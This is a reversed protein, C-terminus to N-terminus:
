SPRDALDSKYITCEAKSRSALRMMSIRAQKKGNAVSGDYFFGINYYSNGQRPRANYM